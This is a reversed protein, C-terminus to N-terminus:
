ACKCLQSFRSKAEDHRDMPGDAYFSEAGIQRIEYQYKIIKQLVTL